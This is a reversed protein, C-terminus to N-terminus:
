KNRKGFSRDAFFFGLIAGCLEMDWSDMVGKATYLKVLWLLIVVSAAAPRIGSNWADVLKNGTPKFANQMAATFARAEEEDVAAERQAEITRIGLASQMQLMAMERDHAAADLEKQLTLRQLEHQHDQKKNLWNAVEGWIMRFASGGLFSFLASLIM